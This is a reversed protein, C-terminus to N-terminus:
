YVLIKTATLKDIAFRSGKVELVFMGNSTSVIKIPEGVLFGMHEFQKKQDEKLNLKMIKKEEGSNAMFLQM